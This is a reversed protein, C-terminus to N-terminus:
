AAHSYNTPKKNKDILCKYLMLVELLYDRSVNNKLFLKKTSVYKAKLRPLFEFDPVQIGQDTCFTQIIVTIENTTLKIEEMRSVGNKLNTSM